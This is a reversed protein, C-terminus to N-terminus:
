CVQLGRLRPDAVPARLAGMALWPRSPMLLAARASAVCSAVSRYCFGTVCITLRPPVVCTICSGPQCLLAGWAFALCRVTFFHASLYNECTGNAHRAYM